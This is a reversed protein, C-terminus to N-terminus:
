GASTPERTAAIGALSRTITALEAVLVRAAGNDAALRAGHERVQENAATLEVIDVTWPTAPSAPAGRLADVYDDIAAVFEPNLATSPQAPLSGELSTCASTVSNLAARYSRLWRRLERSDLRTAGSAAEFAARARYARQWAASLADAPHDLEHVFAKVVTAAYDIETKLLEGARQRLRILSHDPLVVHAILALGAGIVVAFLRDEMTAGAAVADIDLLFVVSAALAASVALYGFRVVAYTVAVFMAAVLAAASGTPQWLMTLASAFAIGTGIGAIRGICRTYTHATEPRLVILVTLAIWYGHSVDGFRAAAIGLTTTSSLRVAHRLVPSTWTLHGRVQIAAARLSGVLDPHRLEGFRVTAAEHLQQSFRQAVAAEPGSIAAVTTDVRDLAQEADRRATHSHDAVADLFAAAATLLQSGSEGGPGGRLASLTATIREPLRYGGHYAKPRRSAQSDVFAERLSVLPAVDVPADRDAAVSRADTALARYATTLADRQVRWRQPPWLAVMAAQVCGAAITLATPALVGWLTPEEVPAIVLLASAATAVLGANAGLAWQMGAAFCWLAVVGVFVADNSATLAGLFVAAGMQLSVMVVLPVRGGPSDQLAIAGAIAAAGAAWVAATPSDWYLAVAAMALVGLLSRTVAGADPTAPKLADVARSGAIM